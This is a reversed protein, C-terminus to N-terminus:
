SLPELLMKRVKLFLISKVIHIGSTKIRIISQLFVPCEPTPIDVQVPILRSRYIYILTQQIQHLILVIKYQSGIHVVLELLGSKVLIPQEIGLSIVAQPLTGAGTMLFGIVIFSRDPLHDSLM